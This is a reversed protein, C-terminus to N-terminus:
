VSTKDVQFKLVQQSSRLVQGQIVFFIRRQFVFIPISCENDANDVPIKLYFCVKLHPGSSATHGALEQHRLVEFVGEGGREIDAATVLLVMIRDTPSASEPIDPNTCRCVVCGLDAGRFNWGGSNTAWTQHNLTLIDRVFVRCVIIEGERWEVGM